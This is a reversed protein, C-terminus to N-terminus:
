DNLVVYPIAGITSLTSSFNISGDPHISRARFEDSTSTWYSFGTATINCDLADKLNQQQLFSMIVSKQPINSFCKIFKNESKKYFYVRWICKCATEYDFNGKKKLGLLYIEHKGIELIRFPYRKYIIRTNPNCLIGFVIDGPNLNRIGDIDYIPNKSIESEIEKQIKQDEIEIIAKLTKVQEELNIIQDRISQYESLEM